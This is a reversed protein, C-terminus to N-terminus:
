ALKPDAHGAGLDSRGAGETRELLPVSFPRTAAMRRAAGSRVEISPRGNAIACGSACRHVVNNRGGGRTGARRSSSRTAMPTPPVAPCETAGAGREMVSVALGAMPLTGFTRISSPAAAARARHGVGGERCPVGGGYVVRPPRYASYWV